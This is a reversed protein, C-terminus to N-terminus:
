ADEEEETNFTKKRREKKTKKYGVINVASISIQPSKRRYVERGPKNFREVIGEDKIDERKKSCTASYFGPWYGESNGRGAKSHNM